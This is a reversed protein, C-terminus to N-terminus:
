CKKLLIMYVSNYFETQKSIVTTKEWQTSM